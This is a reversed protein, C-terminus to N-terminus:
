QPQIGAERAAAAWSNLQDKVFAPVEQRPMNGVEFGIRGFQDQTEPRKLVATVERDLREVVAAPKKSPAFLAFWGYISFNPFGQEVTTPVGPAHSFGRRVAGARRCEAGTAGTAGLLAPTAFFRAKNVM